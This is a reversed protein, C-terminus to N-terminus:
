PVEKCIQNYMELALVGMKEHRRAIWLRWLADLLASREEEREVILHFPRFPERERQIKM